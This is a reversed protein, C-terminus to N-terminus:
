IWTHGRSESVNGVYGDLLQRPFFIIIGVYYCGNEGDFDKEEEEAIIQKKAKKSLSSM